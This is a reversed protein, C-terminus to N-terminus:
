FHMLRERALYQRHEGGEAAVGEAPVPEAQVTSERIRVGVVEVQPAARECEAVGESRCSCPGQMGGGAAQFSFVAAQRENGGAACAPLRGGHQQFPAARSSREGNLLR